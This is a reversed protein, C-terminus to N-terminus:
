PKSRQVLCDWRLDLQYVPNDNQDRRESPTPTEPTRQYMHIMRATAFTVAGFRNYLALLNAAATETATLGGAWTRFTVPTTEVYEKGSQLLVSGEGVILECYPLVTQEQAEGEWIGGTYAGTCGGDGQFALVLAGPLSDTAM